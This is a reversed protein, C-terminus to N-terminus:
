FGCTKDGLVHELSSLDASDYREHELRTHTHTRTKMAPHFLPFRTSAGGVAASVEDSEFELSSSSGGAGAFAFGVRHNGPM